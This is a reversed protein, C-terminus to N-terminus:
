IWKDNLWIWERKTAKCENIMWESRDVGLNMRKRMRWKDNMWIWGSKAVRYENLLENMMWWEENKNLDM